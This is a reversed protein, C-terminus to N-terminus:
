TNRLPVSMNSSVKTKLSASLSSFGIKVSKREAFITEYKQLVTATKTFFVGTRVEQAALREELAVQGRTSFRKPM